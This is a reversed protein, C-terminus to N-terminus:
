ELEEKTKGLKVVRHSCYVLIAPLGGPGDLWRDHLLTLYGNEDEEFNRLSGDGWESYDEDPRKDTNEDIQKKEEASLRHHTPEITGDELLCYEAEDLMAKSVKDFKLCKKRM